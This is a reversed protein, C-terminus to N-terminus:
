APYGKAELGLKKVEELVEQARDEVEKEAIYAEKTAFLERQVFSYAVAVLKLQKLAKPDVNLKPKTAMGFNYCDVRPFDTLSHSSLLFCLRGAVRPGSTNM